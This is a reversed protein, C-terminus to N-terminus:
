GAEAIELAQSAQGPFIPATEGEAIENDIVRMFRREWEEPVRIVRQGHKNTFSVSFSLVRVDKGGQAAICRAIPCNDRTNATGCQEDAHLGDLWARLAERDLKDHVIPRTELM